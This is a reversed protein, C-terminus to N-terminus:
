HIFYIIYIYIYIYIYISLYIYIYMYIYIYIHIFYKIYTHWIVELYGILVETTLSFIRAITKLWPLSKRAQMDRYLCSRTIAYNCATIFARSTEFSSILSFNKSTALHQVRKKRTIILIANKKSLIDALFRQYICGEGGCFSGSPFLHYKDFLLRM